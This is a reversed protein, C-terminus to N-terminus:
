LSHHSPLVSVYGKGREPGDLMDVTCPWPQLNLEVSTVGTVCLVTYYLICVESKTCNRHLGHYM